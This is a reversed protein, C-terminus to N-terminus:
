SPGRNQCVVRPRHVDGGGVQGRGCSRGVTVCTPGFGISGGPSHVGVVLVHQDAGAVRGGSFEPGIAYTAGARVAPYTLVQLGSAIMPTAEELAVEIVVGGVAWKPCCHVEFVPFLDDLIHAHAELTEVGPIGQLGPSLSRRVLVVFARHGLAFSPVFVSAQILFAEQV